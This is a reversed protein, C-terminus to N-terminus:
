DTEVRFSACDIGRAGLERRIAEALREVEASDGADAVVTAQLAGECHRLRVEVDSRTGFQLQLRVEHGHRGVSGVRLSRLVREALM